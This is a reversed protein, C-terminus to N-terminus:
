KINSAIEKVKSYKTDIREITYNNETHINYRAYDINAYLKKIKVADMINYAYDIIDNTTTDKIMYIKLQEKDNGEEPMSKVLQDMTMDIEYARLTIHEMRDIAHNIIKATTVKDTTSNISCLVQDLLVAIDHKQITDYDEMIIKRYDEINKISNIQKTTM